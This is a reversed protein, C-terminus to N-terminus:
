QRGYKWREIKEVGYTMELLSMTFEDLDEPRCEEFLRHEHRRVFDIGQKHGECCTEWAFSSPAEFAGKRTTFPLGGPCPAWLVQLTLYITQVGTAVVWTRRITEAFLWACWAIDEQPIILSSALGVWEGDGNNQGGIHEAMQSLPDQQYGPPTVMPSAFAEPGQAATHQASAVLQRLWSNLTPIQTEAVHRLRIDGDFLCIIQYTLLAHVRALHEFTDLAVAGADDDSTTGPPPHPQDALLQKVRQELLSTIIAKNSEKRNQYTSLATFADQVCRPMHHKYAQQHIFPCCGTEVWRTLWEKAHDTYSRLVTSCYPAASHASAMHDVDWSGKELYWPLPHPHSRPGPQTSSPNGIVADLSHSLLGDITIMDGSSDFLLDPLPEDSVTGLGLRQQVQPRGPPEYIATPYECRWGRSQCRRCAPIQRECKRKARACTLCAKSEVTMDIPGM